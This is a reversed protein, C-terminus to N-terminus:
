AKSRKQPLNDSNFDEIVEQLLSFTDRNIIDLKIKVKESDQKELADPCNEEVIKVIKELTPQNLKRVAETMKWKEEFTVNKLDELINEDNKSNKTIHPM